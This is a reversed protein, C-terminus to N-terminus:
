AAILPLVRQLPSAARSGDPGSGILRRVAVWNTQEGYAQDNTKSPRGRTFAIQERRYWRVLGEHLVASDNDTHLARLPLPLDRRLYWLARGVRDSTKDWVAGRGCWRTAVAVAVRTALSHGGTREGCQVVLDAQRAGPTVDAWEAVTRVPVQVKLGAAAPSAM